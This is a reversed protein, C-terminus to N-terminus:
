KKQWGKDGQLYWGAPAKDRWSEAFIAQVEGAKDPFGNATSIEKYLRLRDQNEAKVLRNVEARAKMDLGEATRVELLGDRTIGVHGSELYPTLQDFRVKMDERIARIEPTSVDLNQAAHVFRPAFIQYFSSGPQEAPKDAPKAPEGYVEDVIRDAVGRIEEAPFYINITVCSVVAGIALLALGRTFRKM